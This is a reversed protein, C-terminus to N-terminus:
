SIGERVQVASEGVLAELEALLEPSCSTAKNPFRFEVEGNSGGSLRIVFRDPGDRATLLDHVRRLMQKDQAQEASRALTIHV